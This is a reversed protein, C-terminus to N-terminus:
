ENAVKVTRQGEFWERALRHLEVQGHFADPDGPFEKVAMPIATEGSLIKAFGRRIVEQDAEIIAHGEPYYVDNKIDTASFEYGLFQAMKYLLDVFATNRMEFLAPGTLIKDGLADRYSQWSERINKLKEGKGHFEVSVANLAEVHSPSLRTARTSMLTRFIQRRRANIERGRELWKQAQVALVPGALTAGVITWDM